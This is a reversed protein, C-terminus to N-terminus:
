VKLSESCLIKMMGRQILSSIVEDIDEFYNIKELGANFASISVLGLTTVGTILAPM